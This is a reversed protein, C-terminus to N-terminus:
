IFGYIVMATCRIDIYVNLVYICTHLSVAYFYWMIGYSVITFICIRQEIMATFRAPSNCLDWVLICILDEQIFSRSSLPTYNVTSLMWHMQSGTFCAMFVTVHQWSVRVFSWLDFIPLFFFFLPLCATTHAPESWCGHLTCTARLLFTACWSMRIWALVPSAHFLSAPKPSSVLSKQTPHRQLHERKGRFSCSMKAGVTLM